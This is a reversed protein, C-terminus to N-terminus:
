ADIAKSIIQQVTKYVEKGENTFYYKNNYKEIISQELLKRIHDQIGASQSVMSSSIEELSTGGAKKAVNNLIDVRCPSVIISSIKIDINKQM